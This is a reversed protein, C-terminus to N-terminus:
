EFKLYYKTAGETPDSKSCLGRFGGSFILTDHFIKYFDVSKNNTGTSYYIVSDYIFVYAGIYPTYTGHGISYNGSDTKINNLAKYWTKDSNFVLLVSIGTNEPNKLYGASSPNGGSISFLWQWKGSIDTALNPIEEKKCSDFIFVSIMILLAFLIKTKMIILDM